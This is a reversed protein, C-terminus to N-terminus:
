DCDLDCKSLFGPIFSSMYRNKAGRHLYFSRGQHFYILSIISYSDLLFVQAKQTVQYLYFPDNLNVCTVKFCVNVNKDLMNKNKM